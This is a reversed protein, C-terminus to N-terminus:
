IEALAWEDSSRALQPYMAELAVQQNQSEALGSELTAVQTRLERLAERTASATDLAEKNRADGEGLRQALEQRIRDIHDRTYYWQWGAAGLALLAVVLAIGTLVAGGRTRPAAGNAFGAANPPGEGVPPSSAPPHESPPQESM